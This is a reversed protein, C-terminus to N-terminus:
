YESYNKLKENYRICKCKLYNIIEYMRIIDKEKLTGNKNFHHPEDYEFIVNKEKDYGDVFYGLEKIYYEGGNLAHQFNYGNKIGYEHILNCADPNIMPRIGGHKKEILKLTSIRHKKNKEPCISVCKKCLRNLKTYYKAYTKTTHRIKNKCKPCERQWYRVGEIIVDPLNRYKGKNPGIKGFHPNNKGKKSLSMKKKSVDSHKHNIHTCSKCLTKKKIAKRYSRITSYFLLNNCVPCNRKPITIDNLIKKELILKINRTINVCESNQNNM